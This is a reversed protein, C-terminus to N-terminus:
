FASDANRRDLQESLIRRCHHWDCGTREAVLLAFRSRTKRALQLAQNGYRFRAAFREACFIDAVERRGDRRPTIHELQQLRGVVLLLDMRVNLLERLADQREQTAGCITDFFRFNKQALEPGDRDIM